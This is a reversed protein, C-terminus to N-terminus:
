FLTKLSDGDSQTTHRPSLYITQTEYASQLFGQQPRCELSTDDREVCCSIAFYISGTTQGALCAGCDWVLLDAPVVPRLYKLREPRLDLDGQLGIAEWLLKEAQDLYPFNDWSFLDKRESLM